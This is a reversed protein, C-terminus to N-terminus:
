GPVRIKGEKKSIRTNKEKFTLVLADDQRHIYLLVQTFRGILFLCFWYRIVFHLKIFTTLIASHEWQIM